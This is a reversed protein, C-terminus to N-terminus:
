VNEPHLEISGVVARLELNVANNRYLRFVYGRGDAVVLILACDVLRGRIGDVITPAVQRAEGKCLSPELHRYRFQEQDLWQERSM